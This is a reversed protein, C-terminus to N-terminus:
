AVILLSALAIGLYFGELFGTAYSSKVSAPSPNFGNLASEDM